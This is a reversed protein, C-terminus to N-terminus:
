TKYRTCFRKAFDEYGPMIQDRGVSERRFRELLEFAEGLQGKQALLLPLLRIRDSYSAVPWDSVLNFGYSLRQISGFIGNSIIEDDSSVSHQSHKTWVKL